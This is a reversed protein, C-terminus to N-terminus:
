NAAYDGGNLIKMMADGLTQPFLPKTVYDKAGLSRMREWRSESRDTSVVIVPITSFLPDVSVQQMFEEGNMVPMNIDTLVIDVWTQNLVGLAEQGNGAEFCEGLDMGALDIVRRIYKRMVPSDDVILIRFAM